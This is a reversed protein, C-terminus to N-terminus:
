RSVLVTTISRAPSQVSRREGIGDLLYTQANKTANMVVLAVTGDPNEFAIASLSPHDNKSAIRVAGPQVFKSFHGIYYYSSELIIKEPFVDLIIPADCVNNVHNPGGLNDLWLNWDMWGECWNSLDGIINRAYREGSEWTYKHMHFNEVCGETFMLHKDPWLDHTRGVNGFAESVYWHFAMGWVYKAAEPDNLIPTVHEVMVDRNHDWVMIGVDAVDSAAVTPGLHNKVFDREQEGSYICSDWRQVAQPENQVSIWKVTLGAKRYEEVFRVYYRAWADAYRELLHGGRIPSNNDKMFAPPTWPSGLLGIPKGAIREAALVVPIVYKRDRAIDFTALEADGEEIYTYSSLSFDCGHISVRGLSYGIGEVPDFYLRIAQERVEPSVRYLNYCASETFAGGFGAITQYRVSPDLTIAPAETAAGVLNEVESLRLDTDKATVVTRIM